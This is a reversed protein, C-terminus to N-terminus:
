WPIHLTLYIKDIVFMIISEFERRPSDYTDNILIQGGQSVLNITTIILKFNM